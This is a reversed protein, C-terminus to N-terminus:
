KKLLYLSRLVFHVWDLCDDGLIDGLSCFSHKANVRKAFDCIIAPKSIDVYESLLLKAGGM